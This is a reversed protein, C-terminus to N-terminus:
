NWTNWHRNVFNLKHLHQNTSQLPSPEALLKHTSQESIEFLVEDEVVSPRGLRPKNKLSTDGLKFYKFWDQAGHKNDTGPCKTDNIEKASVRASIEKTCLYCLIGRNAIKESSM